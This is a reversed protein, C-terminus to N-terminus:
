GVAARKSSELFAEIEELSLLELMTESPISVGFESELALMLQMHALSDWAAFTETDADEPIQEPSVDFVGAMVEKIHERM